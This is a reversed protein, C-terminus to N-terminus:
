WRVDLRVGVGHETDSQESERRTANVDVSIDSSITSVRWGLAYDRGEEWQGYDVYPAQRMGERMFGYEVEASLRSGNSSVEGGRIPGDYFLSEMGGSQPEGWDQRLAVSAGRGESMDKEWEFSASIGRSEFGGDEHSVLGRGEIDFTIGLETHRLKMGGGLEAGIGREADGGDRRLGAEVRPEFLASESLRATWTGEVGARIRSVGEEFYDESDSKAYLVDSVFALGLGERKRKVIDGRIGGAAMKWGIDSSWREEEEKVRIEGRGVGVTGWISMYDSIKGGAYPAVGTIHADISSGGYDGSGDARIIMLGGLMSETNWDAGGVGMTVNGDGSWGERRGEFSSRSANAWFVASDKRGAEFSSALLVEELSLSEQEQEGWISEPRKEVPHVGAIEVRSEREGEMRRSVAEVVREAVTRGFRGTWEGAGERIKKDEVRVEVNETKVSSYTNDGSSIRHEIVTSGSENGRVTVTQERDWNEKTFVLAGSVVVVSSNQSYPEVRVELVPESTLVVTYSVRGGEGSVSLKAESVKIGANDNDRVELTASSNTGIRYGTGSLVTVTVEGDEEDISDDTTTVEYVAEKEGEKITVTSEVPETYEGRQEVKIKVETDQEVPEESIIRYLLVEGEEAGVGGSVSIVPSSTSPPVGGGGTGTGTNPTTPPPPPTTRDDDNITVTASSPSGKNVGGPVTGLTITFTENSEVVQDETTQITFSASGRTAPITVSVQSKSYDGNGATGNTYTIGVATASNLTPSMNLTVSVANGESVSYSSASLSVTPVTPTPDNDTITLTHATPIGVTYGTGDTLTLIVTEAPEDTSDDNIVVPIMASTAGAAISLTGSLTTYDSGATATGSISYGLTLGGSPAASSLNVRVNRTGASESASSSASAFSASPTTPPTGDNDTITLTHVSPSGVTYGTGGTLTLIVTEANENTSDDNIAVPITATTAGAAITLSGSGQITFDNGSGATATGSVSYRLTLGGSPAPSINVTVNRTGASEAASSSASAFSVSPQASTSDNDAITLTHVSPSGVTYGAGGTLTLIVTEANEQASDDNIAVPITASAGGAAISVTGSNQITFDNGSGATATGSISYRLTLGGSPAPRTLDVQVVHTGDDEAASSSASGFYAAPIPDDNDRVTVVAGQGANYGTGDNVFVQVDGDDEDTSDNVTPVTFTASTAGANLTVTRVGEHSAAVFDQGPREVVEVNVTLRATPAPNANVTFSAASGETVAAGGTLSIRPLQSTIPDATEDDDVSILRGISLANNGGYDGGSTTYTLTATDDVADDDQAASVTVNRARSWLNSGSPNFTLSTPSVTVDQNNSVIKVTVAATPQSSLRLTLTESGGEAVDAWRRHFQLGRTDDDIITVTTTKKDKNVTYGSGGKLTFVITEDNEDIGDDNVYITIQASHRNAPLTMTCNSSTCNAGKITYDKGDGRKASGGITFNVTRAISAPSLGDGIEVSIRVGGNAKHNGFEAIDRKVHNMQIPPDPPPVVQGNIRIKKSEHWSQWSGLSYGRWRSGDAISFGSAGGSDEGDSATNRLRPGTVSFDIVFFYTTSAALKIGGLPATFTVVRDSSFQGQLSPLTLTGITSGPNGNSNGRITATTVPNNTRFLDTKGAAFEVEISDVVYGARNSGTTFAQAHDAGAGSRTGDAKGINSVLVAAQAGASLGFLLVLFLVALFGRRQSLLFLYRFCSAIGSLGHQCFQLSYNSRQPSCSCDGHSGGGGGGEFNRVSSGKVSLFGRYIEERSM